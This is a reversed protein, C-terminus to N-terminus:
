RVEPARGFLGQPRLLLIFLIIVFAVLIRYTPAAYATTLEQAIGFTFAGLIAGFPSGLGGLIIIAFIPLIQEWGMEPIVTTRAGILIGSLASIAGTGAFLAIMVYLTPIGSVRALSPDDAVARMWRGIPTKYLILAIVLVAAVAVVAFIVDNPGILIGAFNWSRVLPIDITRLEHGGFFIIASRLFFSVGISAVLSSVPSRNALHKFVTQYFFLSILSVAVISMAGSLLLSNHAVPFLLLVLYAGLTIYEAIAVNAFRAIGYVLTMALAPLTLISGVILGNVIANGLTVFDM